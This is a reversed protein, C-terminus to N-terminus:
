AQSREDHAVCVSSKRLLEQHSESNVAQLMM